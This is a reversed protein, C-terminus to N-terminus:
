RGEDYTRSMQAYAAAALERQRATVDDLSGCVAEGATIVLAEIDSPSFSAAVGTLEAPGPGPLETIAGDVALGRATFFLTMAQVLDGGNWGGGADEIDERIRRYLAYLEEGLATGRTIPTPETTHRQTNDPM